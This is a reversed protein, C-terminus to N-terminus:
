ALLVHIGLLVVFLTALLLHLKKTLNKYRLVGTGILVLLVSFVVIGSIQEEEFTFEEVLAFIAHIIILGTSLIAIPVHWLRVNKVVTLIVSKMPLKKIKVVRISPFLLFSFFFGSMGVNGIFEVIDEVIEHNQYSLNTNTIAIISGVVWVLCFTIAIMALRREASNKILFTKRKIVSKKEM